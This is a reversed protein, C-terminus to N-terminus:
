SRDSRHPQGNREGCLEYVQIKAAFGKPQITDVAGFTFRDSVQRQIAESVLIETNYEKNLPELRAALNVAAGLVTYAMRDDSGIIGVVAEGSHLGFRTRYPPWGEKEFEVNLRRNAERCALVAACAHAVHHPDDAPANWIAMIADGVFKDVTGGHEMIVASLVALYRSTRLMVQEPDARETIATFGTIDTFLVTVERRSGGPELADGTAVLQQVLRKPVFSAFARVVTQMTAVSRGLDDIERIISRIRRPDGGTEFRQIRDTELALAKMSGSLMSGIWWVVPLAALVFGLALLFLQRRGAEIEAFFEDLPAMVALRLGSSGASQISRFAAVYTRGDTAEFIQRAAGGQRWASLPQAIDVAVLQGLHPLDLSGSAAQANLIETMRPHGIIRGRDDFIFVVGSPGLRQSRLFSDTEALLIDGAVIGRRGQPFPARVTYGILNAIKFVYPETIPGAGPRFADRYWPRERPDYDAVRHEQALVTLDTSFYSTFRTRNADGALMEMVTLRFTAEPPAQLQARVAPGARDLLDLEIFGGDEYGVYLNYLQGHRRLLAALTAYLPPNGLITGSEVPQLQRLVELIDLVDKFQGNVRDATHDAVRDIFSLAASRTISRARDFSLFVLALGVALVVAVFLATVSLQFGFRFRM